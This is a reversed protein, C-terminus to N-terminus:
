TSPSGCGCGDDLEPELLRQLEDAGARRLDDAPGQGLQGAIREAEAWEGARLCRDLGIRLAASM